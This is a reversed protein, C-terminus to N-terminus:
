APVANARRQRAPGPNHHSPSLPYFCSLTHEAVFERTTASAKLEDCVSEGDEPILAYTVRARVSVIM